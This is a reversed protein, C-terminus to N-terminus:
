SAVELEALIRKARDYLISGAPTPRIPRLARDLVAAGIQSEIRGIHQSIASQTVGLSRAAETMNGKDCVTTLVQLSRFDLLPSGMPSETSREDDVKADPSIQSGHDCHRM